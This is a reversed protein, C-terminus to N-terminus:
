AQQSVFESIILSADVEQKRHNKMAKAEELSEIRKQILNIEKKLCRRKRELHKRTENRHNAWFNKTLAWVIAAVVFGWFPAWLFMTFGLVNGVLIPNARLGNMVGYTYGLLFFPILYFCKSVLIGIDVMFIKNEIEEIKKRAQSILHDDAYIDSKLCTGEFEFIDKTCSGNNFLELSYNTLNTM